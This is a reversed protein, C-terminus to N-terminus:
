FANLVQVSQSFLSQTELYNKKKQPYVCEAEGSQTMESRLRRDALMIVVSDCFPDVQKAIKMLELPRM